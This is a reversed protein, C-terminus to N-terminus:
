EEWKVKFQKGCHYCVGAKPPIDRGQVDTKKRCYPCKVYGEFVEYSDNDSCIATKMQKAAIMTFKTTSKKAPM